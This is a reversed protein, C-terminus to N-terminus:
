RRELPMWTLHLGCLKGSVDSYSFIQGRDFLIVHIELPLATNSLGLIRLCEPKIRAVGADSKSISVVLFDMLSIKSCNVTWSLVVWCDHQGLDQGILLQHSKCMLQAGDSSGCNRELMAHAFVSCCPMGRVDLICWHRGWMDYCAQLM